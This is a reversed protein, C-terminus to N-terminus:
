QFIFSKGRHYHKIIQEYYKFIEEKPFLNLHRTGNIDVIKGNINFKCLISLNEDMNSPVKIQNIEIFKITKKEEMNGNSNNELLMKKIYSDEKKNDEIVISYSSCSLSDSRKRKKSSYNKDEIDETNSINHSNLTKNGKIIDYFCPCGDDTSLSFKNFTNNNIPMKNSSNDSVNKSTNKINDKRFEDNKNKEISENNGSFGKDNENEIKTKPSMGKKNLKNKNEQTISDKKPFRISLLKKKSPAKICSKSTNEKNSEKEPSFLSDKNIDNIIESNAEYINYTNVRNMKNNSSFALKKYENLLDQCNDLCSEPEWSPKSYGVWKILYEFKDNYYPDNKKSKKKRLRHKIIKEVEYESENDDSCDIYSM